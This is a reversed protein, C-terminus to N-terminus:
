WPEPEADVAVPSLFELGLPPAGRASAPRRERGLTLPPGEGRGLGAAGALAVGPSALPAPRGPDPHSHERGTRHRDAPESARKIRMPVRDAAVATGHVRPESSLVRPWATDNNADLSGWSAVRRHFSPSQSTPATSRATSPIRAMSSRTTLPPWVPASKRRRFVTLRLTLQKGRRDRRLVRFLRELDSCALKIEIPGKAGILTPVKADIWRCLTLSRHYSAYSRRWRPTGTM